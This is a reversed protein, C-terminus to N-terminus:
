KNQLGHVKRKISHADRALGGREDCGRSFKEPLISFNRIVRM